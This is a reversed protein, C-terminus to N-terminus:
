PCDTYTENELEELNSGSDHVLRASACHKLGNYKM